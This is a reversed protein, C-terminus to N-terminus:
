QRSVFLSLNYEIYSHHLIVWDRACVRMWKEYSTKPKKYGLRQGSGLTLLLTDFKRLDYRFFFFFFIIVVVVVIIIKNRHTVVLLCAFFVFYQGPYFRFRTVILNRKKKTLVCVCHTDISNQGLCINLIIIPNLQCAFFLVPQQVLLKIGM